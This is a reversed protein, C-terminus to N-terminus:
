GFRSVSSVGRPFSYDDYYSIGLLTIECPFAATHHHYHKTGDAILKLNQLNLKKDAITMFFYLIFLKGLERM